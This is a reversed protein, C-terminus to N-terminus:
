TDVSRALRALAEASLNEPVTMLRPGDTWVLAAEVRREPFISQLVAAYVAMQRIYAPDADEIRAPAPRNTKFDVVLVRDPQVLLRDVRGSIAGLGPLHGAVAVEARSGPGFVAAFRADELVALAAAAMEGRQADTLDHERALLRQAGDARAGPDLDPLLQLLRHILDGRRYRGLGGTTGLPSPALGADPEEEGLRSPSAYRLAAEAPAHQTAWAPLVIPAAAAASFPTTRDPDPGFRRSGDDLTRVQGALEDRRFAAEAAGYWGGVTELKDRANIRGCLVLRDRARTLAVYYLRQAEQEDKEARRERAARSANCDAKSSSAWLFGGDETSLLPSGRAGRKVTTEPLFVIPAELGKSGHVTMVRVEGRAGEMERKVTIDLGAFAAILSELDAAGNREAALVQALFEDLVDEAEAGLRTLIRARASRGRGDEFGMLRSFFDFPRRSRAESRCRELFTLAEAWRTNDAAKAQLTAWLSTKGRGHAMQFLDHDDLELFPAKLLAALVLDDGPYQIFRALAMLDDFAIHASLSLRDAGAVPVDRRKLARIIEEFLARRRRVLILVDGYHAGRPLKTEKDLVADGREVLAKIESAIKEALLHNASAASEVDLPQDWADPELSSAERELPWIDVCGSDPRMALHRVVAEGSPPPVGKWADPDAFVADVFGLVQPTSRWSAILPVREAQRGVAQITQHYAATETRLRDPDAGQFSYISQKEDGVIFLTRELAARLRAVGEGVFFESTLARVIEWQEPATDQAEDVLIHDIGGDLKFLVWAADTRVTLLECTKHILDAFDLAGSRRKAGAYATVYASALVLAHVTDQAIRAARLRERVRELRAQDDLLAARLDERPGLGKTKGVWTAPAGDGGETFLASLADTVDGSAAAAKLKEACSADAKGGGALLAQAAARWLAPDIAGEALIDSGSEPGEFGCRRWVDAEVAGGCAEVYAGLAERRIEFAAFMARFDDYALAISLRAYADAVLGPAAMALEAVQDRAEGAIESAAADDMVQFGPSVDAELPFRKLLKECFAHITQIKLGGPTELARAFLARARSLFAPGLGLSDSGDLRELARRLDLDEMVAWKGLTDFLRRQMEAAAAKTYTVCLIAEPEAGALLLRAVRAVLTTTKGSGANATVFVSATPASARRQALVPDSM